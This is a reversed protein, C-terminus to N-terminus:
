STRRPFVLMAKKGQHERQRLFLFNPAGIPRHIYDIDVLGITIGQKDLIFRRESMNHINKQYLDTLEVYAEYSEEVWYRM